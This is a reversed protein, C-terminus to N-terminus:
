TRSSAPRRPLRRLEMGSGVMGFDEASSPLPPPALQAELKAWAVLMEDVGRGPDGEVDPDGAAFIASVLTLLETADEEGLSPREALEYFRPLRDPDVRAAVENLLSLDVADAVEDQEDDDGAFDLGREWPMVLAAAPWHIGVLVPRYDRGFSLNHDDRVKRYTVMFDRDYHARDELRQELRPQLHQLVDTTDGAAIADVLDQRTLPGESRGGKDFRLAHDLPGHM